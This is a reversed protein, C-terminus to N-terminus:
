SASPATPRNAALGIIWKGIDALDEADIVATEDQEMLYNWRRRSSGAEVALFGKLTGEDSLLYIQGDPGRYAPEMMPLGAQTPESAPAPWPVMSGDDERYAVIGAPVTDTTQPVVVGSGDGVARPPLEVPKWQAPVGDDNVLSKKILGIMAKVAQEGEGGSMAMLMDTASLRPAVKFRLAERVGNRELWLEFEDRAVPTAVRKGFTKM